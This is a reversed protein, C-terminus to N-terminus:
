GERWNYGVLLVAHSGWLKENFRMAQIEQEPPYLMVTKNNVWLNSLYSCRLFHMLAILLQPLLL